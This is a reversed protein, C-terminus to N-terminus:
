LSRVDVGVNFVEGFIRKYELRRFARSHIVRDRDRQYHTRWVPPPEPHERGRTDGSFQACPALVQREIQELEQRTRPM